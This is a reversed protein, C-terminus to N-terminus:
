CLNHHQLSSKDMAIRLCDQEGTSSPIKCLVGASWWELVGNLFWAVSSGERESWAGLVPSEGLFFSHDFRHTDGKHSVFRGVHFGVFFYCPNM